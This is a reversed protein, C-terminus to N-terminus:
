VRGAGGVSQVDYSERVGRIRLVSLHTRTREDFPCGRAEAESVVRAVIENFGQLVSQIRITGRRCASCAKRAYAMQM